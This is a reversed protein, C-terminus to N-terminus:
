CRGSAPITRDDNTLSGSDRGRRRSCPSSVIETVVVAPELSAAGIQVIEALAARSVEYDATALDRESAARVRQAEAYRWLSLSAVFGCLLTMGLSALLATIVTHRRCWRYAREVASAQRALIPRGDLWARQLDEALAEASGYRRGPDKSLCNLIITELDRPISPNLRRPSVPDKQIRRIAAGADALFPPRGILLEYLIM